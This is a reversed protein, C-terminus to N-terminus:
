IHQEDTPLDHREKALGARMERGSEILEEFTIGQEKLLEDLEAIERRTILESPTILVGQPTENVAVLDGKKLGLKRRMDAPLTVQGKEQVRAYRQTPM